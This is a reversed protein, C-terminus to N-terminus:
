LRICSNMGRGTDESVSVLPARRQGSSAAMCGKIAHEGRGRIGEDHQEQAAIERYQEAKGAERRPAFNTM